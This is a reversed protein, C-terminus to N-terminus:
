CAISSGINLPCFSRPLLCRSSLVQFFLISTQFALHMLTPSLPNYFFTRQVKLSIRPAIYRDKCGDHKPSCHIIFPPNNKSTTCENICYLIFDVVYPRRMRNSRISCQHSHLTYCIILLPLIHLYAAIEPFHLRAAPGASHLTWCTSLSLTINCISLAVIHLFSFFSAKTAHQSPQSTCCFRLYHSNTPHQVYLLVCFSRLLLYFRTQFNFSSRSTSLLSRHQM